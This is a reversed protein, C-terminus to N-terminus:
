APFIERVALKFGSLIHGFPIGEPVGGDIVDHRQENDVLLVVDADPQYVEVLRQEPFILWVMRSGNALYYAPKARLVNVKDDPSKIEIALDPMQPVAGKTVIPLLRETRTFSLDPMLYNSADHPLHYEVKIGARGLNRPTIFAFLEGALKALIIGHEETSFKEVIQEDLLEFRRDPNEDNGIYGEFESITMM